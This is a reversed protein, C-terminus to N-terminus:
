CQIQDHDHTVRCGEAKYENGTIGYTVRLASAKADEVKGFNSGGIFITQNGLTSAAEAGEGSLVQVTPSAYSSNTQLPASQQGDVSIIWQHNKGTGPATLCQVLVHDQKVM